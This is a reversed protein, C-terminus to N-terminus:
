KKIEKTTKQSQKFEGVKLRNIEQKIVKYELSEPSYAQLTKELESLQSAAAPVARPNSAAVAPATPAAPAAETKKRTKIKDKDAPQDLPIIEWEEVPVAELSEPFFSLNRYFKLLKILLSKEGFSLKEVNPSRTLYQALMIEDFLEAGNIDVFDKLWNAVTPAVTKGHSVLPYSTLLSKSAMLVHTAEVIFNSDNYLLYVLGSNLDAIAMRSDATLVDMLSNTLLDLVYRKEEKLDVNQEYWAVLYDLYKFNEEELITLFNDVQKQYLKPDGGNKLLVEKIHWAPLYSDLPLFIKGIFDRFFSLQGAGALNLGSLEKFLYSYDFEHNVTAFVLDYVLDAALKYDNALDLITQGVSDSKFYFQAEPALSNYRESFQRDAADM